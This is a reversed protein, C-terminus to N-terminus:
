IDLCDKVAKEKDEVDMMFRLTILAASPSGGGHIAGVFHSSTAWFEIFKVIKM